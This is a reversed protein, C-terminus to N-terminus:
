KNNSTSLSLEELHKDIEKMFYKLHLMAIGQLSHTLTGQDYDLTLNPTIPRDSPQRLFKIEYNEIELITSGVYSTKFLITM